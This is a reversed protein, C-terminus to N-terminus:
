AGGGQKGSWAAPAEILAWWVNAVNWIRWVLMLSLIWALWPWAVKFIVLALLVRMIQLLGVSLIVSWRQLHARRFFLRDVLTGLLLPFLITAIGVIMLCYWWPFPRPSGDANVFGQGDASM